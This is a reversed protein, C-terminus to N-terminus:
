TLNRGLEKLLIVVWNFYTLLLQTIVLGIEESSSEVM